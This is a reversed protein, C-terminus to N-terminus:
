ATAATQCLAYLRSVARRALTRRYAILWPGQVTVTVRTRDAATAELGVRVDLKETTLHFSFLVPEDAATVVLVSSAEPRRLLTPEGGATVQWRAGAASGRRDPHVGSVGPWWDALHYPEAVFGWVDPRAALLELSASIRVRRM